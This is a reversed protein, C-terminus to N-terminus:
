SNDSNVRAPRRAPIMKVMSNMALVIVEQMLIALISTFKQLCLWSTAGHVSLCKGAVCMMGKFFKTAHLETADKWSVNEGSIFVM